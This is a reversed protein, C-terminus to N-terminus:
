KRFSTEYNIKNKRESLNELRKMTEISKECHESDNVIAGDLIFNEQNCHSLGPTDFM